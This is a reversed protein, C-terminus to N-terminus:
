RVHECVLLLTARLTTASILYCVHAQGYALSFTHLKAPNKALLYGLDTAPTHTTTITSLMFARKISRADTLTNVRQVVDNRM